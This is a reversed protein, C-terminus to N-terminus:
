MDIYVIGTTDAAQIGGCRSYSVTEWGFGDWVPALMTPELSVISEATMDGREFLVAREVGGVGAADCRWWPQFNIGPYRQRLVDLVTDTTGAVVTLTNLRSYTASGLRCDTPFHVNESRFKAELIAWDALIQAATSGAGSGDWASVFAVPAGTTYLEVGAGVAAPAKTAQNLLGIIGYQADGTSLLLDIEREQVTNAAILGKGDLDVDAMAAALMEDYNIGWKCALGVVRSVDQTAQLSVRPIDRADSVVLEPRGMIDFGRQVVTEAGAPIGTAAPMQQRAQLGPYPRDYSQTMVHRLQHEFMGTATDHRSTKVRGSVMPLGGYREFHEAVGQAVGRCWRKSDFRGRRRPHPMPNPNKAFQALAARFQAETIM